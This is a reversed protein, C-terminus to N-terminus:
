KIQQKLSIIKFEKEQIRSEMKLRINAVKRDSEEM